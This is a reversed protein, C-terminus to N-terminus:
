PRLTGLELGLRPLIVSMRQDVDLGEGGKSRLQPAAQGLLDERSDHRKM